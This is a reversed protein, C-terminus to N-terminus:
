QWWGPSDQVAHAIRGITLAMILQVFLATVSSYEGLKDGVAHTTTVFVGAYVLPWHVTVKGLPM